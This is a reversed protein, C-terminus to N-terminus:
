RVVFLAGGDGVLKADAPIAARGEWHLTNQAPDYQVGSHQWVLVWDGPRIATAPAPAAGLVDAYVNHPYLHYAARGRFYPADAVVFIRAPAQPLVARAKEIFAYLAGDEAALNKDRSDKGGYRSATEAVQRALNWTWRADLVLWALLFSSAIVGALGLGIARPQWRRLAHAIAIALAVAAALLLPLPLDQMDAGGVVGNISTGTWGEFALWEGARDRLTDLAGMPKAVVGRLRLPTPLPGRVTLALGTINGVWRRTGIVQAPRLRGAEVVVPAVNVKNPLYDSNWLMTVSASEPFDAGIWAIAPYQSSRFHANLSIITTGTADPATVVLEDGVLSGSGRVVVLDKATWSKTDAAPFWAGPVTVSLFGIVCLLLATGFVLAVRLAQLAIRPADAPEPRPDIPADTAPVIAAPLPPSDIAPGTAAPRAQPM